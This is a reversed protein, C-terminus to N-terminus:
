RINEKERMYFFLYQQAFGGLEGFNEAAFRKMAEMDDRKLGYLEHMVKKVWVDIPFSEYKAMGFLLICNAVKPGVGMLELLEEESEPLGKETVTRAASLIYKARYGLRVCALDDLTLGAIDEAGPFAYPLLTADASGGEPTRVDDGHQLDKRCLKTDLKRGALRCLKEICGKIRPINNNQSIIFSIITEWLDQGLIRVGEGYRVADGMIEDNRCLRKKIADYDRDLDLYKKWFGDFEEETCPSIELNVLADESGSSEGARTKGTRIKGTRMTVIKDSAAVLYENEALKRNRFCQGCEFIHRLDFDKVDCVTYNSMGKEEPSTISGKERMSKEEPSAISGKKGMGKEESNSGCMGKQGDIKKKGNM